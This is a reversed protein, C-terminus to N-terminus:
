SRRGRDFRRYDAGARSNRDKGSHQQHLGERGRGRHRLVPRAHALRREGAEQGAHPHADYDQTRVMNKFHEVRTTTNMEEAVILPKPDLDLPVMSYASAAAATVKVDRRAPELNACTDAVAKLHEPTTGCCGGVIRVGYETIFQKHYDALEQPQLLYVARGGQNQPLGANPLVSVHKPSNAGLHRVADNMEKPGTACNLGIAAVDFMELTTLAAGIETGLLMTGTAELTVQVQVPVNKGTKKLADFIGVLGAKAQLIDQCTELLLVDVGGEILAVAQETYSAAMDDFSIHGLSPLKTTPGMSGAVFRRRGNFSNAVERALKAAAFNIEHVKDQLDYEALVVRTAGFTDTEVVDCGVKYFAAHIDKIIDPRSLVLIENCGEKGWFDDVSPNRFQINTGMAGDYIVVREQVAQLFDSM